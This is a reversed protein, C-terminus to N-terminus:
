KTNPMQYMGKVINIDITKRFLFQNRSRKCSLYLLFFGISEFYHFYKEVKVNKLQFDPM